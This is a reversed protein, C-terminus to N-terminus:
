PRRKKNTPPRRDADTGVDRHSVPVTVKKLQSPGAAIPVKLANRAFAAEVKLRLPADRIAEGCLHLQRIARDAM